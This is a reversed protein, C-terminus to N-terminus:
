ADCAVPVAGSVGLAALALAAARISFPALTPVANAVAEFDNILQVWALGAGARTQEVSVAWPLNSNILRDGELVGAIAVVAGRCPTGAAYDHLISALDPHDACAYRRYDHIENSGDADIWGLRAYTGGVDAVIIRRSTPGQRSSDTSVGAPMKSMMVTGAM